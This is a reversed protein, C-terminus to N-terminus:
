ATGCCCYLAPLQMAERGVDGAEVPTYRIPEQKADVVKHLACRAPHRRECCAHKHQEVLLFEVPEATEVLASQISLIIQQALLDRAAAEGDDGAAHM